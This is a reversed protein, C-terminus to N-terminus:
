TRDKERKTQTDLLRRIERLEALSIRKIALVEIVLKMVSGGFARELLDGLLRRQTDQESHRARYLHSRDEEDRVTLGEGTMIQLLKLTTTYALEREAALVEYVDRVTCPGQEWLVCLITLEADTPRPVHQKIM